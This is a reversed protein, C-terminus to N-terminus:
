WKTAAVVLARLFFERNGEAGPLRSERVALDELGLAAAARRIKEVAKQQLVPDRVIGGKGVERRSLEFQPKVLILFLAGPRTCRVAAPLIKEVSIFAVDLTVLDVPEGLDEPQLYRANTGERVQVRQDQRLKWDLQGKGVDVAYVRAAGHQLLCDTFGGTSAGIDLCVQGRVNVGFDRLAGELKLGGRSVYRPPEGVLEVRADAAVLAGAKTAARGNVHIQGALILAQAKERTSALGQLLVLRDLRTRPM